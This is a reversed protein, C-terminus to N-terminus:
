IYYGSLEIGKRKAWKKIFVKETETISRNGFGAAQYLFLGGNTYERVDLTVLPKDIASSSRLFLIMCINTNIKETYSGVCHSLSQGEYQLDEISKPTIVSFDADSYQLSDYKPSSVKEKFIRKCNEDYFIKHNKASIDHCLKLSRPFTEYKVGMEVCMDIYDSLLRLGEKRSTIGQYTYIDDGIYQVLRRFDYNPYKIVFSLFEILENSETAVSIILSFIYEAKQDGFQQILKHLKNILDRSAFCDEHGNRIQKIMAKLMGRTIGLTKHLEGQDTLSLNGYALYLHTDGSSYLKEIWTNRKLGVTLPGLMFSKSLQYFSTYLGENKDFKAQIRRMAKKINSDTAKISAGNHKLSLQHPFEIDFEYEDDIEVLPEKKIDGYSLSVFVNTGHVGKDSYTTDDINFSYRGEDISWLKKFRITPTDKKCFPCVNTSGSSIHVKKCIPCFYLEWAKYGDNFKRTHCFIKIM